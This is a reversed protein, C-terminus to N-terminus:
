SAASYSHGWAGLRGADTVVRPFGGGADIGLRELTRKRTTHTRDRAIRFELHRERVLTRSQGALSRPQRVQRALRGRAVHRDRSPDAVRHGQALRQMVSRGVTTVHRFLCFRARDEIRDLLGTDLRDARDGHGAHAIVDRMHQLVFVVARVEVVDGFLGFRWESFGHRHDHALADGSAGDGARGLVQGIKPPVIKFLSDAAVEITQLCGDRVLIGEALEHPVHEHRHIHGLRLRGVLLLIRLVFLRFGLRLVLRSRALLLRLWLLLICPGLGTRALVRDLGILFHLHLLHVPRFSGGIEILVVGIRVGFDGGLGAARVRIRGLEELVEVVLDVRGRM